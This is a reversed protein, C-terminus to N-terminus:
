GRGCSEWEKKKMRTGRNRHQLTDGDVIDAPLGVVLVLEPWRSRVERTRDETVTITDKKAKIQNALTDPIETRTVQYHEIRVTTVRCLAGEGALQAM